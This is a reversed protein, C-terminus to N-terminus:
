GNLIEETLARFDEAGASRPEYDFISRQAIQARVLDINVRIATKLLRDGLDDRLVQFVQDSLATRRDYKSLLVGRLKLARNHERRIGEIEELLQKLGLVAFYGVEVPVIVEDAAALASRTFINISPPCDFIMFDYSRGLPALLKKLRGVGDDRHLLPEIDKLANNAPLIDGEATSVIHDTPNGGEALLDKLTRGDEEILLGLTASANGQADLDVMLVRKGRRTLGGALGLAATTKGVGGKQNTFAIKRAM